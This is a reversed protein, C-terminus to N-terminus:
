LNCESTNKLSDCYPLENRTDQNVEDILIDISDTNTVLIGEPQLRYGFYVRLYGPLVFQGRYIEVPHEASLSVNKQFSVLHQPQQDWVQIGGQQDLMYFTGTDDEPANKSEAYVVIDATKGVDEPTVTIDGRVQVQDCLCQRVTQEYAGCNVSIGGSFASEKTVPEGSSSMAVARDKPITGSAYAQFNDFVLQTTKHAFEYTAFYVGVAQVDEFTHTVFSAKSPNFEIRNVQELLQNSRDHHLQLEEESAQKPKLQMAELDAVLSQMITEDIAPHYPAWSSNLPNLAITYGNKVPTVLMSNTGVLTEENNDDSLSVQTASESIWFQNGDQVLFRVEQLNLQFRTVDVSLQSTDDFIIREAKAGGNIFDAKKWVFAATFNVQANKTRQFKESFPCCDGGDNVVMVTMDAWQAWPYGTPDAWGRGTNHPFSTSYSCPRGGESPQVTPQQFRNFIPVKQGKSDTETLHSVNTFRAVMGGYFRASPRKVRYKQQPKNNQEGAALPNLPYNMSFEYWVLADNYIGDQNVDQYQSSYPSQSRYSYSAVEDKTPFYADWWQVFKTSEATAVKISLGWLIISLIAILHSSQKFM